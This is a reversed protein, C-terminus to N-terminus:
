PTATPVVVRSDDKVNEAADNGLYRCIIDPPRCAAAAAPPALRGIYVTM